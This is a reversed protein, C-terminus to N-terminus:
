EGKFPAFEVFSEYQTIRRDFAAESVGLLIVRGESDNVATVADVSLLVESGM